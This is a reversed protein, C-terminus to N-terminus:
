NVCVAGSHRGAGHKASRELITELCRHSREGDYEEGARALRALCGKSARRERVEGIEVKFVHLSSLERETIGAAEERLELARWAHYEVLRLAHRVDVGGKLLWHIFTAHARGDECAGLLEEQGVLDRLGEGSTGGRQLKEGKGDGLQAFSWWEFWLGECLRLVNRGTGRRQDQVVQEEGPAKGRNVVTVQGPIGPEVAVQAGIDLAIYPQEGVDAVEVGEQAEEGEASTAGALHEVEGREAALYADAVGGGPCPDGHEPCAVHEIEKRRVVLAEVGAGGLRGLEVEEVGAQDAVKEPEATCAVQPGVGQAAGDELREDDGRQPLEEEM